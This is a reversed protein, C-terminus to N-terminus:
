NVRYALTCSFEGYNTNYAANFVCNTAGNITTRNIKGYDNTIPTYSDSVFVQGTLPLSDDIKEDIQFATIPNLADNGINGAGDLRAQRQAGAGLIFYLSTASSAATLGFGNKLVPYFSGANQTTLCSGGDAQLAATMLGSQVLHFWFNALEGNNFIEAGTYDDLIGDGDGNYSSSGTLCSINVGDKQHFSFDTANSIDGPIQGYKDKFLNMSTAYANIDRLDSKISASRIMDQGAVIAGIIFGIIVLVVALEILTFGCKDYTKM